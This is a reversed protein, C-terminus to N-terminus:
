PTGVGGAAAAKDPRAYVEVDEFFRGVLAYDRTIVAHLPAAWNRFRSFESKNIARNNIVIVAPRREMIAKSEGRLFDPTATANDVYLRSQYSPRDCMVNVIPVYPYTIVFDGPASHALVTDRLGEWDPLDRSKVRSQVGNLARFGTDLGDASRISGSSGRGYLSNYSVMFSLVVLVVGLWAWLRLFPGKTRLPLLMWGSCVLAPWFPVMFESLHVADPRFFFYQPFLTLATGMTVLMILAAEKRAADRRFLAAALLVVGTLVFFGAVPVPLWIATAFYYIRWPGIIDSLPPRSQRGDRSGIDAPKSEVTQESAVAAPSEAKKQPEPSAKSKEIEQHLEWRLLGVYGAYQAVFEPGFGRQYAHIVFPTHVITFAAISALTGRLITRLRASFKGAAGFPYLLTLGVWIVTMLLAPEIRILFCLSLGAGAAAMWGIQRRESSASLVYARVLLAMALVAIFGMYNRFIMGPMLIMFVGTVAATWGRGTVRRVLCFGMLGTILALFLFYIRMALWHTGTFHFIASLPYFWLLNYGLFTDAIPRQGELIRTALLANSGQEGTLQLGTDYYLFYYVLGFVLLAAFGRRYLWEEVAAAVKGISAGPMMSM